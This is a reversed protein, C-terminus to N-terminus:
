LLVYETNGVVDEFDKGNWVLMSFPTICRCPDPINLEGNDGKFLVPQNPNHKKLEEILEKVTIM